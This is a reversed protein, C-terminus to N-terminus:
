NSVEAIGEGVAAKLARSLSLKICIHLGKKYFKRDFLIREERIKRTMERIPRIMDVNPM